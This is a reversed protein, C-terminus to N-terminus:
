HLSQRVCQTCKFMVFYRHKRKGPSLSKDPDSATAESHYKMAVERRLKELAAARAAKEAKKELASVKKDDVKAGAVSTAGENPKAGEKPKAGETSSVEETSKETEIDLFALSWEDPNPLLDEFDPIIGTKKVYESTKTLLNIMDRKLLTYTENLHKNVHKLMTGTGGGLLCNIVWGCKSCYFWNTVPADVDKYYIFQMGREWMPSPYRKDKPVGGPVMTGNKLGNLVDEEKLKFPNKVAPTNNEAYQEKRTKTQRPKKKKQSKRGKKQSTTKATESDSRM